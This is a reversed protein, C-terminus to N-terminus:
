PFHPYINTAMQLSLAMVLKAEKRDDDDDDDSVVPYTAEADPGGLLLSLTHINQQPELKERM